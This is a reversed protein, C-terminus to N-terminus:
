APLKSQGALEKVRRRTAVTDLREDLLVTIYSYGLDSFGRATRVGKVDKLKLMMPATVGAAIQEPSGPAHAYLLIQPDSLDPIADLPSRWASWAGLMSLALFILIVRGSRRM